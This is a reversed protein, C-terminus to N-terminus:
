EFIQSLNEKKVFDPIGNIMVNGASLIEFDFGM